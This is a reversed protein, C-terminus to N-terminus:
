VRRRIFAILMVPVRQYRIRRPLGATYLQTLPIDRDPPPPHLPNISGSACTNAAVDAKSELLTRPTLHDSPRQPSRARHEARCALPRGTDAPVHALLQSAPFASTVRRRRPLRQAGPSTREIRPVSISLSCPWLRVSAGKWKRTWESKVKRKGKRRILSLATTDQTRTLSITKRMGCPRRPSPDMGPIVRRVRRCM